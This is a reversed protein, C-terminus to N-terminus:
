MGSVCGWLGFGGCLCLVPLMVQWIPPTLPKKQVLARSNM